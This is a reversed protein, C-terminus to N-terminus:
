RGAALVPRHIEDGPAEDRPAPVHGDLLDRAPTPVYPGRAGAAADGQGCVEVCDRRVDRRLEVTGPQEAATRAVRLPDGGGHERGGVPQHFRALLPDVQQEDDPLLLPGVARAGCVV